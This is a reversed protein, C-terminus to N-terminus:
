RLVRTGIRPPWRKVELSATRALVRTFTNLSAQEALARELVSAILFLGGPPYAAGDFTLAIDLGRITAGPGSRAAGRRVTVDTLGRAWARHAETVASLGLLERLAAAGRGPEELAIQGLSLRAILGWFADTGLPPPVPETLPTLRRVRQVAAYGELDLGEDDRTFVLQAPLTHNTGQLAVRVRESRPADPRFSADVFALSVETGGERRLSPQRHVYWFRRAAVSTPLVGGSPDLRLGHFPAFEEGGDLSEVRVVAYVEV